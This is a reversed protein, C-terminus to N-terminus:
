DFKILAQSLTFHFPVLKYCPTNKVIPKSVIQTPRDGPLGLVLQRSPAFRVRRARATLHSTSPDLTGAQPELQSKRKM